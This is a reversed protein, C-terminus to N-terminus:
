KLWETLYPCTSPKVIADPACSSAVPCLACPVTTYPNPPLKFRSPKYLMGSAGEASSTGARPDRFSEVLGDFVLTNLVTIVDDVRLEVKFIGTEQMFAHVAEPSAYGRQSIFIFCQEQLTNILDEDLETGSYWAGGTLERSPEIEYLMYVKKTKANVAHVCKIIKRSELVKLSKTIQM